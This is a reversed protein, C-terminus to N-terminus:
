PTFTSFHLDLHSNLRENILETALLLCHGENDFEKMNVLVKIM